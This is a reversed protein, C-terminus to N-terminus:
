AALKALQKTSANQAALIATIATRGRPTVQYRHTKPIKQILHHARLLRLQRTIKAAQRKVEAAALADAGYLAQRLDRNRFGHLLFEGQNVAKLLAMDGPEMPQLARVRRGQWQTPRCLPRLTDGLSESHETAALAELYRANSKQSIEARRHLDAVGKRLRQWSRPARPQGEKHRFVKMEGPRNITTEVRLVSGQKDYMKVSNANVCHRVRTGEERAKLSTTIESTKYRRVQPCRGLFRLVDQSGLATMAYRQFTPFLAALTQPSRFLVDTAWETELASWYYSMEQAGFLEHHAPHVRWLLRNLLGKWDTRLQQDALKQARLPDALDVFCNDRQEYAIGRQQLSRALWERGNLCVHVTFPLWTQLRLHLPGFRRDILYFYLHACKVLQRRIELRRRQRNPGVTMSYCPEVCKLVCVLGEQIGDTRAIKSALDEKRERSSPLYVLPRGARQALEETSSLVTDTRGKAWEKFNKLLVSQHSLFRYLGKTNALIRMTGSFRLRDFGSLVGKIKSGYQRLFSEM